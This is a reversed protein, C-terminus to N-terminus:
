RCGVALEVAWLLAVAVEMAMWLRYGGRSGVAVRILFFFFVEVVFGGCCGGCIAMFRAVWWGQLGSSGFGFLVLVM